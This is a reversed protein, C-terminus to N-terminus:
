QRRWGQERGNTSSHFWVASISTEHDSQRRTTEVTLSILCFVGFFRFILFGHRTYISGVLMVSHENRVYVIKIPRKAKGRLTKDAALLMFVDLQSTHNCVWISPEPDNQRHPIAHIKCFPILRLLWRACFQGASLSLQEQRMKSILGLRHLIFPPFLAIPLAICMSAIYMMM